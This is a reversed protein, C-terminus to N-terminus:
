RSAALLEARDAVGLLAYDGLWDLELRPGYASLFDLDRSLEHRLASQEGIGISFRAGSALEAPAVRGDGGWDSRLSEEAPARPLSCVRVCCSTKTARARAM